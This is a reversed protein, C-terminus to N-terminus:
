SQHPVLSQIQFDSLDLLRKFLLSQKDVIGLRYPCFGNRGNRMMTRSFGFRFIGSALAVMCPLYLDLSALGRFKWSINRKTDIVLLLDISQVNLVLCFGVRVVAQCPLNSIIPDEHVKWSMSTSPLVISGVCRTTTDLCPPHFDLYEVSCGHLSRQGTSIGSIVFIRNQVIEMEFSHRSHNLCPGAFCYRLNPLQADIIDVSALPSREPRVISAQDVVVASIGGAVVIYRDQVSVANAYARPTSLCCHFPQWASTRPASDILTWSQLLEHISIREISKLPKGIPNEGGIAFISDGCVVAALYSRAEIMSPGHCWNGNEANWLIVSNVANSGEQGGLLVITERQSNEPHRVVVYSHDERGRNTMTPWECEEQARRERDDNINSLVVLGSLRAQEQWDTNM